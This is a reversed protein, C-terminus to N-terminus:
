SNIQRPGSHMVNVFFAHREIEPRNVAHISQEASSRRMQCTKDQRHPYSSRQKSTSLVHVLLKTSEQPETNHHPLWVYVAENFHAMTGVCAKRSTLFDAWRITPTTDRRVEM